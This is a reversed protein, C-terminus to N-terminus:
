ASRKVITKALDIILKREGPRAKDWLTWIDEAQQPDRM